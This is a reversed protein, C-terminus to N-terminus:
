KGGRCIRAARDIQVPKAVIRSVDFGPENVALAKPGPLSACGSLLVLLAAAPLLSAMM